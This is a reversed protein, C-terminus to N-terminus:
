GKSCAMSDSDGRAGRGIDCAKNDDRAIRNTEGNGGVKDGYENRESEGRDYGDDERVKGIGGCPM